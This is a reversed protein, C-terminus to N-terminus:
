TLSRAAVQKARRKPRASDSKTRAFRHWLRADDAGLAIKIARFKAVEIFFNEGISLFLQLKGAVLNLDLERESLARLYAVGTALALALEQVANAGAEHYIATSIAISGLLPSNAHVTQLHAALHDFAAAPMSGTLALEGLPDAGVCGHLGTMAESDLAALMLAYIAPARRSHLFIPFRRLDIEALATGLDAGDSLDLSDTLVIASQGNALADKLAANFERPEPLDIAQAILWPQARYGAATAGRVFPFQGPLSGLHSVGALDADSTLPDLRLTRM